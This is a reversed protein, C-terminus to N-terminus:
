GWDYVKPKRGRWWVLLAACVVAVIVAGGALFIWTDDSEEANDTVFRVSATASHVTGDYARVELTHTGDPLNRTDYLLGWTSNGTANQWQKSDFRLQVAIIELTGRTASGAFLYKGSVGQAARPQKVTVSPAVFPSVSITFEQRAEGGKGDGVVLTVNFDGSAEWGPIWDLRGTFRDVMMGAPSRALTFNLMDGDVDVAQPIYTYALGGTLTTVPTSIFRPAKNLFSVVLTFNLNSAMEGDSVEVSARFAGPASPTWRLFGTESDITMGAPGEELSFTLTGNEADAASLRHEYLMGGTALLPPEATFVPADNVQRVVVEFVNSLTEQGWRDLCRLRVALRGTWNDNQDGTAADVSLLHGASVAVAVIGPPAVGEVSINLAEGPDYEDQFFRGLDILAANASDENLALLPIDDTLRPPLDLELELGSLRVRGPTASALGLPVSINGGADAEGRHAALYGNLAGSFDPVAAGHDYSMRLNQITLNGDSDAGFTLPLDTRANGSGDVSSPPNSALYANLAGSFDPVARPGAIYGDHSWLQSQGLKLWPSLLYPARGLIYAQGADPSGADARGAGALISSFRGGDLSGGLAVSSGYGDGPKGRFTLYPQANMPKGGLFAFAAGAGAGDTSDGAAGVLIDSYGDGDIDGAGALSSGFAGDQVTGVFTIDAETRIATGGKYIYAAGAGPLAGNQGTAGVLMDDYGDRDVDGAGAGSWGLYQKKYMGYFHVEAFADMSPSGLFLYAAGADDNGWDNCPAGVLIDGDGDGDVDGAVAVSFGFLDGSAAGTMCLDPGGDMAPGGHYLYASGRDVASGAVGPAGAVVDDYGDGNVDGAGTVSYGLQENALFGDLKVDDGPDMAEGGFYVYARGSSTNVANKNRAGVVLDDFGDGNVDGAGAVAWGFLDGPFDGRLVMDPTGNMKPGGFFVYARGADTGDIGDYPAGVVYDGTGDGNLDGAAAASMGFQAGTGGSGSLRASELTRLPGLCELEASAATVTANSPLRVAAGGSGGAPSLALTAKRGDDLFRDQNGLPGYGPGEFRWLETGDLSLVVQEPFGAPGSLATLGTVNVAARLVHSRAPLSLNVAAEFGPASLSAESSDGGGPFRDVRAAPVVSSLIVLVIIALVGVAKM